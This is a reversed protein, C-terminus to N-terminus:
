AVGDLVEGGHGVSHEICAMIEEVSVPKAVFSRGGIKGRHDRVEGKSVVATVYVVPIRKLIDDAELQAAVEGGDTDPM